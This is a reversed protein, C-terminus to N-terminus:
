CWWRRCWNINPGWDDDDDDYRDVDVPPADLDVDEGHSHEGPPPPPPLSLCLEPDWSGDQYRRPEAELADYRANISDAKGTSVMVAAHESDVGSSYPDMDVVGNVVTVPQQTLLFEATDIVEAEWWPCGTPIPDIGFVEVPEFVNVLRITDVDVVRDVEYLQLPEETADLWAIALALVSLGALMSGLLILLKNDDRV